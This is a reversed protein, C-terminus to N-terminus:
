LPSGDANFLAGNPARWQRRSPSWMSGAPVSQPAAPARATPAQRPAAAAPAQPATSAAPAAPANQPPLAGPTELGEQAAIGFLKQVAAKANPPPDRGGNLASNYLTIANRDTASLRQQALTQFNKSQLFDLHRDKQALWNQQRTDKATNNANTVDLRGSQRLGELRIKQETSLEGKRESSRLKEYELAQQQDQTRYKEIADRRQRDQSAMPFQQYARAEPGNPDRKIAAYDPMMPSPIGSGPGFLPRIPGLSQEPTVIYGGDPARTVSKYPSPAESPMEAPAAAAPAENRQNWSVAPVPPAEPEPPHYGTPATRSYYPQPQEAYYTPPQGRALPNNGMEHTWPRAGEIAQQEATRGYRDSPNVDLAGSASLHKYANDAASFGFPRSLSGRVGGEDYPSGATPQRPIFTGRSMRLREGTNHDIVNRNSWYGPTYERTGDPRILAGSRDVPFSDGYRGGVRVLHDRKPTTYPLAEPGYNNFRRADRMQQREVDPTEAQGGGREREIQPRPQPL